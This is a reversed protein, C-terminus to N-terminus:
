PIVGQEGTPRVPPVRTSPGTRSQLAEKFGKMWREAQGAARYPNLAAGHPEGIDTSSKALLKKAANWGQSYIRSLQFSNSEMFVGITCLDFCGAAPPQKM